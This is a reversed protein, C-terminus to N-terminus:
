ESRLAVTPDVKTARRAPLYSALLSSALLVLPATVLVVPEVRDVGYLFGQLLQGAGLALLLGIGIGVATIRGGERLVQWLLARPHAGTAIRIGFERTRRSVVYSKVGYVGIVALLLAIGGFASFVRAGARYLWVDLGADLHDRWTEVRLVPVREDVSRIVRAVTALMAREAEQDVVRLQLTMASEYHQGLPVYVHPFPRPNGLSHKVAPVIGVVRIPQGVGPGEEDTFQILRGLAGEGPWLGEALADDVIAVRELSGSALEADSFDRGGLMPLGLVRAYDRGIVSFVAGVSRSQADAAGAPAVSRSDGFSTFPFGSGITVAEVGPVTRLRDVLALQSQRGRAEDYGALSPDVEVLLGGDLRFGPDATAASIASMLFLGGSSLLLLSLAVQGIVLANGIRVGRPRHGDEGVHRKLDTVVARGTAAWAPWAGFVLTAALSFGVTGALVRWDLGLDPLSVAVPLVPRVSALLATTAWRSLFLGVAGGALALLLGETLLQRILRGRGGGLSSRIAMEQRRVQERALLLDVLNLCAVLLVIAPMIMLLLAISATVAGSGPGPIFMLRWPASMELTYGANVAPFAQELRRGVTALAAAVTESSTGARLRGVVTLEHEDRGGFPRGASVGTTRFSDHAGLPLWVEPGPIGTGTFGERAVGVVAFQEGNIRVLRGLMGPDAGRQEWLPYSIIAVRIDAGLWEEEATFPRGLALPLGFVQFYNATVGSALTRKAGEGVDLGAFVTSSAALTAFIDTTGERLDVYNQYSVGRFEGPPSTSRSYVGVVEDPREYLPRLLLGNVLSFMGINVGIGLALTVVATLTFGPSRRLTRLAFRTDQAFDDLWTWGWADRAEDRLRLTNGFARSDELLARHAEMERRLDDEHARRRLLYGLRRIWEGILAM